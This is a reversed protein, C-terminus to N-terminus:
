FNDKSIDCPTFRGYGEDTFCENPGAWAPRDAPVGPAPRYAYPLASQVVVPAAARTVKHRKGKRSAADAVSAGLLSIVALTAVLLKTKMM